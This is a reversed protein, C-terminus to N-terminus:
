KTKVKPIYEQKTILKNNEFSNDNLKEDVLESFRMLEDDSLSEVYRQTTDMVITNYPSSPSSAATTTSLSLTTTLEDPTINHDTTSSTSVTTSGASMLSTMSGLDIKTGIM